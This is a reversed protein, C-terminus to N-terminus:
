AKDVKMPRLYLNELFLEEFDPIHSLNITAARGRLAALEAEMAPSLLLSECGALATNGCLEIREDPIDPLLGVQRANRTDLRAGFVGCVCVRRLGNAGIHAKGMLTKIGVGIAAKARQFMDVDGKTLRIATGEKRVAFGDGLHPAFRGTPKLEGTGCLLAILDVLGSGCLGRAEGGGIVEFHMEGSDERLDVRYIAGPEAPMGCQMGCSEFAPGGAASTVWLTGGDWLAMESNTGFDILLSGPQDTLRTAVVGALLDSGVFGALPSVVEVAAQPSLGIADAWAKASDTNLDFPLTWSDPMLLTLPDSETLLALMATNGVIVARVVDRIGFGERSCIDLLGEYLADLPMRAIRGASDASQGAAILRTVVDQGFVSQPNLGISGALRKGLGLDWLSLSIHTTGLDVALGYAAESPVGGPPSIDAPTFPSPALDRWHSKSVADIIRVRLDGEPMLQCALRVNAALQDSSLSIRENKTPEGANGAEVQVLCLGCAGNGLCGSRVRLGAGYLLERLSDGKNFSIERAMDDTIVTLLPM